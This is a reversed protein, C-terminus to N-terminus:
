KLKNHKPRPCIETPRRGFQSPAQNLEQSTESVQNLAQRGCKRRRQRRGPRVGEAAGQQVRGLLITHNCTLM